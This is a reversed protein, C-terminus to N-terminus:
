LEIGVARSNNTAVQAWLLIDIDHETCFKMHSGMKHYSKPGDTHHEPCLAVVLADDKSIRKFGDSIIHHIVAPRGCILCGDELVRAHHLKIARSQRM